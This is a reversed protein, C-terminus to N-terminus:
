KRAFPRAAIRAASPPVVRGGGFCQLLRALATLPGASAKLLGGRGAELSCSRFCFLAPRPFCTIQCACNFTGRRGKYADAGQRLSVVACLISLALRTFCTVGM